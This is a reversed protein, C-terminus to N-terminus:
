LFYEQITIDLISPNNYYTASISPNSGLTRTKCMCVIELRAGEALESVDGRFPITM